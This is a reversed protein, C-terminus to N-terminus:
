GVDGFIKRPRSLNLDAVADHELCPPIPAVHKANSPTRSPIDGTGATANPRRAEVPLDYARADDGARHAIAGFPLLIVKALLGRCSGKVLRGESQPTPLIKRRMRWCGDFDVM